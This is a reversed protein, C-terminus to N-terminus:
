LVLLETHTASIRQSWKTRGVRKSFIYRLLRLFWSQKKPKEKWLLSKQINKEEEAKLERKTKKLDAQLQMITEEQNRLTNEKKVWIRLVESGTIQQLDSMPLHVMVKENEQFLDQEPGETVMRLDPGETVMRLEPGETVMRLEPGETVMRLEPGETVMRLEPGETVMRLEPGETVMRLEPGETVMRLDPGETVMRLEPGETVMRLEPGETVMRLEPGETVMRLEPGETVMRLEPGETVMRLEPGETVMRLEPGETVMRLEPGETVMRLEPGETVMRLEPGETVMRLEPGETVMRLEPGETVMRLDPGETVMRLEPGETVMRLEPGETVMRLEPGETVMRLEPGETVMRLDPGETVMRLEPGETVMQETAEVQMDKMDDCVDMCKGAEQFDEETQQQLQKRNNNLKCMLDMNLISVMILKTACMKKTNELSEYQRKRARHIQRTVDMTIKQQVSLRGNAQRLQKAIARLMNRHTAIVERQKTITPHEEETKGQLLDLVATLTKIDIELIVREHPRSSMYLMTKSAELNQKVTQEWERIYFHVRANLTRLPKPPAM